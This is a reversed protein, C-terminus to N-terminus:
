NDSTYQSALKPYKNQIARLYTFWRSTMGCVSSEIQSHRHLCKPVMLADDARSLYYCKPFTDKALIRVLLYSYLLDALSTCASM